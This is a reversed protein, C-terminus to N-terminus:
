KHQYNKGEQIRIRLKFASGSGAVWILASGSGCGQYSHYWQIPRSLVDVAIPKQNKLKLKSYKFLESGSWVFFFCVEHKNPDRNPYIGEKRNVQESKYTSFIRWLAARNQNSQPINSYESWLVTNVKQCKQIVIRRFLNLNTGLCVTIRVLLLNSENKLSAAWFKSTKLLNM